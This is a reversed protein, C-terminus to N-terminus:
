SLLREIQDLHNLDHGGMTEIVTRFTMPGREPHSLPKSFDADTLSEILSINWRRVSEFTALASQADPGSSYHRAWADQDFPQIVHNPEALAQRLRFAFVVECDALHCLVQRTSWKGAPALDVRDGARDLLDKLRSPTQSIVELPDRDGLFKAYPNSM